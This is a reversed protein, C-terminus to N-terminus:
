KDNHGKIEDVTMKGDYLGKYLEVARVAHESGNNASL